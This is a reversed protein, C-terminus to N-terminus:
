KKDPNHRTNYKPRHYVIAKKELRNLDENNGYYLELEDICNKKINDTIWQAHLYMRDRFSNTRGIYMYKDAKKFAYVVNGKLIPMVESWNKTNIPIAFPM